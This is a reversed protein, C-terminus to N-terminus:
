VHRQVHLTAAKYTVRRQHVCGCFAVVTCHAHEYTREPTKAKVNIALVVIAASGEDQRRFIPSHFCLFVYLHPFHMNPVHLTDITSFM